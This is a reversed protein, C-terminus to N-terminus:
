CQGQNTRRGFLRLSGGFERALDHRWVRWEGDEGKGKPTSTGMKDKTAQQQQPKPSSAVGNTLPKGVEGGSKKEPSNGNKEGDKNGNLLKSGEAAWM